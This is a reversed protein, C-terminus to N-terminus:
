CCSNNPYLMVREIEQEIQRVSESQKPATIRQSHSENSEFKFCQCAYCLIAYNANAALRPYELIMAGFDVLDWQVLAAAQPGHSPADELPRRDRDRDHEHHHHLHQQQPVVLQELQELPLQQWSIAVMKKGVTCNPSAHTVYPSPALSLSQSPIFDFNFISVQDQDQNKIRM